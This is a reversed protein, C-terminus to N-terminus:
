LDVAADEDLMYTVNPHLQLMSAPVTPTISTSLMLSAREAVEGGLAVLIIHKATMLTSMGMIISQSSVEKENPFMIECEEITSQPLLEVHTLASFERAPSNLALHGNQGLMLLLVDMGGREVIDAEYSTCAAGLDQANHNPANVRAYDMGVHEYLARNIFGGQIGPMGPRRNINEGTHFTVAESWDLVSEATMACLKQYVVQLMAGASLGIVSNPKKIIQAAIMTAAAASAANKNRYIMIGM